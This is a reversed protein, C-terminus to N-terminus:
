CHGHSCDYGRIGLWVWGGNSYLTGGEVTGAAGVGAASGVISLPPSMEPDSEAVRLYYKQAKEHEYEVENDRASMRTQRRKGRAQKAQGVEGDRGATQLGTRRKGLYLHISRPAELQCSQTRGSDM